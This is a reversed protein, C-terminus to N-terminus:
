GLHVLMCKDMRVRCSTLFQTASLIAAARKIAAEEESGYYGAQCWVRGCVSKNDAYKRRFDTLTM